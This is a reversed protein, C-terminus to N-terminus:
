SQVSEGLVRRVYSDIAELWAKNRRSFIRSDAWATTSPDIFLFQRMPLNTKRPEESQHYIGYPVRTGIVISKKTITQIADQDGSKTISAELRGSFKLLPYGRALGTAKEKSWQYATYNGNRIRKEPRGPNKWTNAIKPGVFDTYKGASKLAFIAKNAKYFERGIQILAPRLDGIKKAADNLAKQMEQSEVKYTVM